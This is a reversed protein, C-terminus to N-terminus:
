QYGHEIHVLHIVENGWYEKVRRLQGKERKQKEEWEKEEEKGEGYYVYSCINM